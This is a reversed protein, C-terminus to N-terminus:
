LVTKLKALVAEAALEGSRMAANISGNALHDGALFITDSYQVIRSDYTPSKLNPLANVITYSKLLTLAEIGCHELLEKKVQTEVEAATLTHSKVITVSLVAEPLDTAVLDTVFHLNNVLTQGGWFLGIIPKGINSKLTKFYLTQSSHWRVPSPQLEKILRTPDSAIIIYDYAIAEGEGIYVENGVVKQIKTKFHFQTRMLSAYLQKPIEQMGKEPIAADGSAFMKYVFEFMRSSTKLEDELFIGAFFPKFFRNIVKKSFGYDTLYQLTTKDTGSFIATLEKNKLATSLRFIRWKDMLGAANSFVTPLLLSFDRLPDGITTRKGNRLLLAGPLFRKLKLANYDLYKKTQPYDTLLVQFGHDLPVGNVFDTRVRGGVEEGAEYIVSAKGAKELCIAAVLGSLGAGIIAIRPKEM